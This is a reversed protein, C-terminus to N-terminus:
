PALRVRKWQDPSTLLYLIRDHLRNPRGQWFEVRDPILRYGGWNDPKEMPNNKFYDIMEKEKSELFERNPIIKSQPSVWAGIQSGPPRSLFYKESEEKSTKVINGEIRVQRELEPWFFTMAAYPNHELEKGKQSIYSTYFVFGHDLGKLLLIRSTPRNQLNVTALNMASPENVKAKIAQKLWIDFQKLPSDEIEEVRLSKLTYETRIAAIDM